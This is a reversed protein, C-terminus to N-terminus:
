YLLYGINKGNNDTKKFIGSIAREFEQYSISEAKKNAKRCLYKVLYFFFQKQVHMEHMEHMFFAKVFNM